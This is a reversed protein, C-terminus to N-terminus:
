RRTTVHLEPSRAAFIQRLERLGEVEQKLEQYRVDIAAQEESPLTAIFDNLDRGM